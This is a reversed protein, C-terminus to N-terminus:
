HQSLDREPLGRARRWANILDEAVAVGPGLRYERVCRNCFAVTPPPPTASGAILVVPPHGYVTIPEDERGCTVCRREFGTPLEFAALSLGLARRDPQVDVSARDAGELDEPEPEDPDRARDVRYLHIFSPM